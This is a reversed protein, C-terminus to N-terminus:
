ECSGPVVAPRTRFADNTAIAVVLDPFDGSTQAFHTELAPKMCEKAVNRGQAFMLWRDAICAAVYESESLRQALDVAGTLEGDVDTGILSGTTDITQGNEVTRYRGVADFAELGFGIPDILRHCGACSPDATHEAFRERTTKNPDAEPVVAVEANPPAGLPQCLLTQRVFVGRQIPSTGDRKALASMLGVDTLIGARQTPDLEVREPVASSSTVGFLPATRATAFGYSASLLEKLTPEGSDFVVYETFAETSALLDARMAADFGPYVSEAKEATKIKELEFLQHFFYRLRDRAAQTGMLRRAEAEVGDRTALVGNEAATLLAEDPISGTIFFSLRTAMEYGSLAILGNEATGVGEEFRYFFAPSELVTETVARIGGAFGTIGFGADYAALLVARDDDTLPRRYARRALGNMYAVACERRLTDTTATVSCPLVTALRALVGDAVHEAAAVFAEIDQATASQGIVDNDFGTSSGAAPWVSAPRTDDGLLDRVALNYESASLRRLPAPGVADCQETEVVPPDNLQDSIEGTCGALLCGLAVLRAVFQGRFGRM